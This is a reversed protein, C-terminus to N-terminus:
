ALLRVVPPLCYHEEHTAPPAALQHLLRSSTRELLGWSLVAARWAGGSAGWTAAQFETMSSIFPHRIAMSSAFPHRFALPPGCSWPTSSSGSLNVSPLRLPSELGSFDCRRVAFDNSRVSFHNQQRRCPDSRRLGVIFLRVAPFPADM